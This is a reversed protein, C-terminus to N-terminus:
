LWPIVIGLRSKQVKGCLFGFTWATKSLYVKSFQVRAGASGKVFTKKENKNKNKAPFTPDRLVWIDWFFCFGLYWAFFFFVFFGLSEYFARGPCMSGTHLIEPDREFVAHVNSESPIQPKISSDAQMHIRFSNGLVVTGQVTCTESRYVFFVM